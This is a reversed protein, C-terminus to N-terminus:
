SGQTLSMKLSWMSYVDINSDPKVTTLYNTEM